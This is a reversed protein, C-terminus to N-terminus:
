ENDSDNKLLIGDPNKLEVDSKIVPARSIAKLSFLYLSNHQYPTQQGQM